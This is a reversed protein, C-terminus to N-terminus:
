ESASPTSWSDVSTEQLSSLLRSAALLGRHLKALNSRDLETMGEIGAVNRAAVDLARRIRDVCEAGSPSVLIERLLSFDAACAELEDYIPM